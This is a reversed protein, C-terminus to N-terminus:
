RCARPIPDETAPDADAAADKARIVKRETGQQQRMQDPKPSVTRKRQADGSPAGVDVEPWSCPM